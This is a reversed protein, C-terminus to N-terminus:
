SFMPRCIKQRKKKLFRTPTFYIEVVSKVKAFLPRSRVLTKLSFSATVQMIDHTALIFIYRNEFSDESRSRREFGKVKSRAGAALLHSLARTAIRYCLM